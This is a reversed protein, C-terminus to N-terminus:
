RHGSHGGNGSSHGGGSNGGGGGGSRVSPAPASRQPAPSPSSRYGGPSGFGGGRNGQPANNAPARYAPQSLVFENLPQEEPTFRLDHFLYTPYKKDSRRKLLFRGPLMQDTDVNDRNYTAAIATLRTFPDM